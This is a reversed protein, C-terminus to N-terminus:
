KVFCHGVDYATSFGQRLCHYTSLSTATSGATVATTRVPTLKMLMNCAAKEFLLTKHLKERRVTQNQLKQCFFLMAFAARLLDTPSISELKFSYL